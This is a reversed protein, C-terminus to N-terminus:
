IFTTANFNAIAWVVGNHHLDPIADGNQLAVCRGLLSRAQLSPSRRTRYVSARVPRGAIFWNPEASTVAFVEELRGALARKANRFMVEGFKRFYNLWTINRVGNSSNRLKLVQLSRSVIDFQQWIVDSVANHIFALRSPTNGSILIHMRCLPRLIRATCLFSISARACSGRANCRGPSLRGKDRIPSWQQRM